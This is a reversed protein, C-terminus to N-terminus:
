IKLVLHCALLVYLLNVLFCLKSLGCVQLSFMRVFPWKGHYKVPPESSAERTVEELIMCEYRCESICDWKKWRLYLPEKLFKEHPSALNCKPLINGELDVNVPFRCSNFCHGNVCGTQECGKV